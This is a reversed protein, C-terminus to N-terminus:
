MNLLLPLVYKNELEKEQDGEIKLEDHMKNLYRCNYFRYYFLCM